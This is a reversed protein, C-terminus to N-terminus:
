EVILKHVSFEGQSNNIKLLYVGKAYSAVSFTFAQRFDGLRSIEQGTIDTLDASYSENVAGMVTITCSETAPNPHIYIMDSLSIASTGANIVILTDSMSNCGNVDTASVSYAGNQTFTMSAATDGPIDVGNLQWQYHAASINDSLINGSRSITSSAPVSISLHLTIISDCGSVSVLTDIYTGAQTLIRSGFAYENGPCISVSQSAQIGNTLSLLLTVISDCGASSSFTDVYTGAQAIMIGGFSYSSGPCIAASQSTQAGNTLSLHLTVISDCGAASSFTDVYTGTQTLIHGGFSYSSGPCIQASATGTHASITISISTDRCVDSLAIIARYIGPASPVFTTDREGWKAVRTNISVSISENDAVLLDGTSDQYVWIPNNITSGFLPNFGYGVGGLITTGMTDGIHWKQIRDNAGDAILINGHHDLFISNPDWLQNAANAGGHGGAVTIGTTAGLVWLQVRFNFVDAIYINDSSDVWISGPHFLQNPNNGQYNGGAVTTGMTDGIVWRQVRDNEEDSIYLVGATNLFIGGPHSLQKPSSGYGNGGAVTVGVSDGPAFRQVRCNYWDSVYLYDNDDIYLGAPRNLHVADNGSVGSPNGAIVVGSTDGTAWKIIRNNLADTAFLDGRKNMFFKTGDSYADVQYFTQPLPSLLQYQYVTDIALRNREWYIPWNAYYGSLRITDAALCPSASITLSPMPYVPISIKSSSVTRFSDILVVWISDGSQLNQPSYIQQNSMISGNLYWLYTPHSSILNVSAAQLSVNNGQQGECVGSAGISFINVAPPLVIHIVNSMGSGGSCGAGSVVVYVSDGTHCNNSLYYYSQYNVLQGNYYWTYRAGASGGVAIFEDSSITPYGAAETLYVVNQSGYPSGVYMNFNISGGRGGAWVTDNSVYMSITSSWNGYIPRNWCTAIGTALDIQALTRSHSYGMSYSYGGVWLTNGQPVMCLTQDSSPYFNFNAPVGNSDMALFGFAPYNGLTDFSGCVYIHGRYPLIQSIWNQGAVSPSMVFATDLHGTSASFRAFDNIPSNHTGIGFYCYVGGVYIYAGAIAISYIDGNNVIPDSAWTSLAGTSLDFYRITTIGASFYDFYINNGDAWLAGVGDGSSPPIVPLLAGTAADFVALHNRPQGAITTFNGGVILKGNQVLIVNVADNPAPHWSQLVGSDASLMALNPVSDGAITDFIGCIFLNNQYRAIGSVEFGAVISIGPQETQAASALSLILFITLLTRKM